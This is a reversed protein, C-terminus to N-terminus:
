CKKNPCNVSPRGPACTAIAGPQCVAVMFQGARQGPQNSVAVRMVYLLSLIRGARFPGGGRPESLERYAFCGGYRTEPPERHAFRGGYLPKPPIRPRLGGCTRNGDLLSARHALEYSSQDPCCM